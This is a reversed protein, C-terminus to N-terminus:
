FKNDKNAQVYTELYNPDVHERHLFGMITQFVEQADGMNGEIYAQGSITDFNLNELAKRVVKPEIVGAGEEEQSNFEYRDFLESLTCFICIQSQMVRGEEERKKEERREDEQLARELFIADLEKDHQEFM